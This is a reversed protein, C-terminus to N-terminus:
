PTAPTTLDKGIRVADERGSYYKPIVALERYGRAQYFARAASNGGRCELFIMEIGATTASMELWRLLSSGIGRNRHVPEVGFLLLHADLDHYEMLAFGVIDAGSQAVVVNTAANRIRRQVRAADWAWGLGHEIFDRSMEAIRVADEAVALRIEGYEIM